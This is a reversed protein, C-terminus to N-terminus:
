KQLLLPVPNSAFPIGRTGLLVFAHDLRAGVLSAPVQAIATFKAQGRGSRDLLGLSAPLLPSNALLLTLGSYLDHNLPIRVTGLRLGPRIGSMSGLVLYLGNALSSGAALRFTQSGNGSLSVLHTDTSLALPAGSWVQFYHVFRPGPGPVQFTGVVLDRLGDADVDGACALWEGFQYRAARGIIRHLEKGDKGSYVYVSGSRAGNSSEGKAGIALDPTGDRNWDDIGSM